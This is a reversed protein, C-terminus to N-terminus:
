CSKTVSCKSHLLDLILFYKYKLFNQTIDTLLETLWICYARGWDDPNPDILLNIVNNFAVQIM